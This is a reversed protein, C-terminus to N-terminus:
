AGGMAQVPVVASGCHKCKVAEVRIEEACFPCSRSEDNRDLGSGAALAVPKDEISGLAWALCIVWPVLLWGLFLNVILISTKNPHKRQSAVLSPAFYIFVGAAWLVCFVILGM